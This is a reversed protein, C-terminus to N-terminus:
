AEKYEVEGKRIAVAVLELTNRQEASMAIMEDFVNDFQITDGNTIEKRFEERGIDGLKSNIENMCWNLRHIINGLFHKANSGINESSKVSDFYQIAKHINYFGKALSMVETPTLKNQQMM